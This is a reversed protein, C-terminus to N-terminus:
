HKKKIWVETACKCPPNRCIPCDYNKDLSDDEWYNIITKSHSFANKMLINAMPGNNEKKWVTSIQVSTKSNLEKTSFEILKTGLGQNIYKLSVVTQKRFAIVEYKQMTKYFWEKEKLVTSKLEIHSILDILTFGITQNDKLIVFGIYKESNFYKQLYFNDLYGVGLATNSLNLVSSLHEKQFSQLEM